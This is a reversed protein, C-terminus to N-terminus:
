TQIEANAPIVLNDPIILVNSIVPYKGQVAGLFPVDHWLEEPM